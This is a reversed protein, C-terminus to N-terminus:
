KPVEEAKELLVVFDHDTVGFGLSRGDMEAWTGADLDYVRARDKPTLPDLTITVPVPARGRLSFQEALGGARDDTLQSYPARNQLYVLRVRGGDATLAKQRYGGVPLVAPRVALFDTKTLDALRIARGDPDDLTFRFPVGTELSWQEADLLRRYAESESKVCFRHRRDTASADPCWRWAPYRCTEEGGHWLSEFWAQERSIDITLPPDPVLPYAELERFVERVAFYQGWGRACWSLCGPAGSLMTMWAMDRSLLMLLEEKQPFDAYRLPIAEWEGMMVPCEAAIYQVTMDTIAAYDMGPRSGCIDPYNHLSFFDPRIERAWHIPDHGLLGVGPNSICVPLDPAQRRVHDTMDRLWDLYDPTDEWRFTNMPDAHPSAWGAENFIEVAFLGDIGRLAPLIEDLFRHCCIRVDPDSFFRDYPVIDDPHELFRRQAPSASAIEEKTWLRTGWYTRTYPECYFSCEPETFLCLQLGIGYPKADAMYAKIKELLPRNMRGGIDLGEWASGGSDGRPFMRIATAGDEEALFRFFKRWVGRTAHQFEILRNGHQSDAALEEGVYALSFYCGFEGLPLLRTGDQHHFYPDRQKM